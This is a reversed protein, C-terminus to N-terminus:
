NKRYGKRRLRQQLRAGGKLFKNNNKIKKSKM